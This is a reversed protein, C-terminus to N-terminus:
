NHRFLKMGLWNVIVVGITVPMTVAVAYAYYRDQRM